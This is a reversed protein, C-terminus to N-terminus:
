PIDVAPHHQAARKGFGDGGAQANAPYCRAAVVVLQQLHFVGGAAGVHRRGLKGGRVKDALAM